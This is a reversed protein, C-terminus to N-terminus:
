QLMESFVQNQSIIKLLDEIQADKIRGIGGAEKFACDQMKKGNKSNFRNYLLFIRNLQMHERQEAVIELASLKRRLRVNAMVSGDSVFYVAYSREIQMYTMTGLSFDMDVVIWDFLRIKGLEEFLRGMIDENLELMDLASACAAYFYVGRYDRRLASEMRVAPSATTMELAYLVKGFDEEGEASFFLEAAGTQELNLYLVSEGHEALYCAYAAAATSAGVGGAGSFFTIIKKGKEDGKLTVAEEEIKEAYLDLISKYIASLKQYKSITQYGNWTNVDKDETFCVMKSNKSLDKVSSEKLFQKEALIIDPRIKFIIESSTEVQSFVSLDIKDAYRLMMQDAFKSMYKEDSLFPYERFDDILFYGKLLERHLGVTQRQM